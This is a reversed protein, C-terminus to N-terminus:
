VLKNDHSKGLPGFRLLEMLRYGTYRGVLTQIAMVVLLLEPYVFFTVQLPDFQIIGFAGSAVVASGIATRFGERVGQEELILHFREITLTLIVFPLLGVAMFERLGIKNGILAFIIFCSIVVTLVVSLRPVLLLRLRDMFSRVVYGILLVIAFIGIGYLLGTNRFALAMLVPMFIGFTPLGIINRLICIILAGLPVLILIRFTGQFEPPLRFLSWRDLFRESLKIREYQVGWQTIVQRSISWRIDSIKGKVPRVVPASGRTLPLLSSTTQIVRGTEPRVIQWSAGTWVEIWRSTEPMINDELILGEVTQVHLGAARFLAILAKLRGVKNQVAQWKEIDPPSYVSADINGSFAAAIATVRAASPLISTNAVLKEALKQDTKDLGDPYPALKAPPEPPTYARRVMLTSNYSIEAGAPGATGTWTAYRNRGESLIGFDLAGETLKEEILTIGQRQSPLAIIVQAGDGDDNVHAKMSLQWVREPAAPVLPYGLSIVKYSIIAIPIVILMAVLATVYRNM